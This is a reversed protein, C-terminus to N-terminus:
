NLVSVTVNHRGLQNATSKDAVLIDIRNGQIAGGTDGAIAKFSEYPTTVQVVTGLPIRTPDVAIVRMGNHYITNRVDIGMKTIGICGKCTATYYTAEYTQGGAVPAAKQSARKKQDEAAAKAAALRESEAKKLKLAKREAASKEKAKKEAAAKEAAIREQKEREVREAEEKAKREAKAKEEAIRAKEARKAELESSQKMEQAKEMQLMGPDEEYEVPLHVHIREVPQEEEPAEAQAVLVFTCFLVAISIIFVKLGMLTRKTNKM